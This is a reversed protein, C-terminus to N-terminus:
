EVVIEDYILVLQYNSGVEPTELSTIRAVPTSGVKAILVSVLPAEADFNQVYCSRLHDITFAFAVSNSDTTPPVLTLDSGDTPIAVTVKKYHRTFVGYTRQVRVLEVWSGPIGNYMYHVEYNMYYVVHCSRDAPVSPAGAPPQPPEAPALTASTGYTRTLYGMILNALASDNKLLKHLERNFPGDPVGATSTGLVPDSELLFQLIPYPLKSTGPGSAQYDVPSPM